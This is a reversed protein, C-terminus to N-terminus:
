GLDTALSKWYSDDAQLTDSESPGTITVASCGDPDAAATVIATADSFFTLQYTVGYDAPCSFGGEPFKPLTLTSDYIAQATTADTVTVNVPPPANQAISTTAVVEAKTISATMTQLETIVPDTTTTSTTCAALTATLLILKRM